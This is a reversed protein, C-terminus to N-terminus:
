ATREVPPVFGRSVPDGVGELTRVVGEFLVETAVEDAMCAITVSTRPPVGARGARELVPSPTASNAGEIGPAERHREASAAAAVRWSMRM